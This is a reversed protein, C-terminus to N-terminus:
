KKELAEVKATLEQVAKMLILTIQSEAPIAKLPADGDERCHEWGTEDGLPAVLDPLIKELDDAIIGIPTKPREKVSKWNFEKLPIAKITEIGKISTDKIDKKIRKDSGAVFEPTGVSSSCRIAGGDGGDGDQFKMYICDGASSPSDVGARSVIGFRDANNGDHIFVSSYGSSNNTTSQFYNAYIISNTAYLSGDSDITLRATPSDGDNGDNTYFIMKGKQEDSTSDHSVEIKGLTTVEAGSQTGKFHISSDRAGDGDGATTNIM